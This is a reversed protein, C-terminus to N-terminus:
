RYFKGLPSLKTQLFCFSQAGVSIAEGWSTNLGRPPWSQSQPTHFSGEQLLMVLTFVPTELCSSGRERVSTNVSSADRGQPARRSM